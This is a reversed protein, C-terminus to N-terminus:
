SLAWAVDFTARASGYSTVVLAYEGPTTLAPAALKVHERPTPTGSFAVVNGEPDELGLDVDPIGDSSTVNMWAVLAGAGEPVVLPFRASTSEPAAAGAYASGTLEGEGHQVDVPRPAAGLPEQRWDVRTGEPGLLVEVDAQDEQLMVPVVKVGFREGAPVWLGGEPGAVDVDFAVPQGPLLVPQTDASGYGLWSEGGGAYVMVDPFRTTEVVPGTTRLVLHVRVNTVLLDVPAAPALWTPYDDGEAWARFFGGTRVAGEGPPADVLTLDSAAWATVDLPLDADPAVDLVPVICGPLTLALVAGLVALLPRM